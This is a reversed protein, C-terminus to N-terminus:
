LCLKICSSLLSGDDEDLFDLYSTDAIDAIRTGKHKGFSLQMRHPNINEYGITELPHEECRFEVQKEGPVFCYWLDAYPTNKNITYGCKECKM